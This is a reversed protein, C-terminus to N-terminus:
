PAEPPLVVLANRYRELVQRYLPVQSLLAKLQRQRSQFDRRRWLALGLLGILVVGLGALVDLYVPLEGLFLALAVLGGAAVALATLAPYAWGARRYFRSKCLACLCVPAPVDTDRGRVEVREEERWTMWFVFSFVPLILFREGGYARATYRECELEIRVVEAQEAGCCACTDAAPLEGAAILRRVRREISAASLLHPRVRFEELLPVVVRGGCPCTIATGAASAEVPLWKGCECSVRLDGTDKASDATM